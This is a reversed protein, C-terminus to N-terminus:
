INAKINTEKPQQINLNPNLVEPTAKPELM